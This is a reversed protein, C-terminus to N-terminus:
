DTAYNDGIAHIIKGAPVLEEIANLVRIFEQHRHRQMNRDIVTGDLMSLAASLTTTSRWPGPAARRSRCVQSPATRASNEMGGTM